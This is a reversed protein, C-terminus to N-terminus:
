IAGKMTNDIENELIKTCKVVVSLEELAYGFEKPTGTYLIHEEASAMVNGYEDLDYMAVYYLNDDPLDAEHLYVAHRNGEFIRFAPLSWDNSGSFEDIALFLEYIAAANLRERYELAKRKEDM